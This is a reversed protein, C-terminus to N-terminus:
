PVFGVDALRMNFARGKRYTPTFAGTEYALQVKVEGGLLALLYDM